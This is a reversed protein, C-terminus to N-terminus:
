TAGIAHPSNDSQRHEVNVALQQFSSARHTPMKMHRSVADFVKDVSLDQMCRHHRLPCKREGCPQCDLSLTLVTEAEYYSVTALPDTPGFLTVVPKGFAIGFFRPGSDTTVLMRGRRICAKTVGIPLSPLDGLGTVRGDNARAVIERAMARESPGCNVLVSYPGSDVIRRALATCHEVPWHKAAGYAGGANLIVVNEGQPLGLSLWLAAASREDDPTTAIELRRSLDQCGFAGALQLYADIAPLLRRSPQRPTPLRATLLWRRMNGVYGIRRRAGSRWAMWATRFSNTLLLVVDLKASRLVEAVAKPEATSADSSFSWTRGKTYLITEDLWSTGALVDAVYPRMIGILQGNQGVHNRLARLAPTAMVVDGIWNPLFIGLRM